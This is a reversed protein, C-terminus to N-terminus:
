KKKYSSMGSTKVVDDTSSGYNQMSAVGSIDGRVSETANIKVVGTGSVDVNAHKTICASADCSAAGSLDILLKDCSGELNLSVAGSADIDLEQVNATLQASCAGSLDMDLKQGSIEGEVDMRCAGSMEISHLLPSAVTIVIDGDNVHYGDKIKISLENEKVETIIYEMLNPAAKITLGETPAGAKYNITFANEVDIKQFTAIERTEEIPTGEPTIQAKHNNFQFQCSSMFAAISILSILFGKKKM